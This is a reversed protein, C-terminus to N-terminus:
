GEGKMFGMKEGLRRVRIINRKLHLRGGEERQIEREKKKKREGERLLYTQTIDTYSSGM